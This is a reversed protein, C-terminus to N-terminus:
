WRQSGTAMHVNYNMKKAKAMRPPTYHYHLAQKNKTLKAYNQSSNKVYDESEDTRSNEAM